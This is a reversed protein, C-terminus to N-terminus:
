EDLKTSLYRYLLRWRRLINPHLDSTPVWPYVDEKLKTAARWLERVNLRTLPMPISLAEIQRVFEGYKPRTNVRIMGKDRLVLYIIYWDWDETILFYRPANDQQEKVFQCLQLDTLIERLQVNKLVLRTM